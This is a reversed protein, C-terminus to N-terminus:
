EMAIEGGAEKIKQEWKAAEEKSVGEALVSPLNEVFNKSDAVSMGPKLTRIEKLVKYKAGDALKVLKITVTSKEEKKAEEKKADKKADKGATAAAEAGSSGQAASPAEGGIPGPSVGGFKGAVALMINDFNLGLKKCLCRHYIQQEVVNLKIYGDVMQEIEPPFTTMTEDVVTWKIEDRTTIPGKTPGEFEKGQTQNKQAAEAYFRKIIFTNTKQSKPSTCTNKCSLLNVKTRCITTNRLTVSTRPVCHM